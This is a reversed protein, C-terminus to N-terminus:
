PSNPRLIRYIYLTIQPSPLKKEVRVCSSDIVTASVVFDVDLNKLYDSCANTQLVFSDATVLKLATKTDPNSSIQTGVHAYRNFTTETGPISRWVSFQPYNYVGSISREGNLLAINELYGGDSAWGKNSNEGLREIERSVANETIAGLGKYLPNVRFSIFVSFMLFVATALLFKKRLLLYLTIPIPMSFLIAGRVSIFAVFNKHAYLALAIELAFVLLSYIIVPIHPLTMKKKSFNRIWLIYVMVNLLGLGILLRSTGVKDLLLLRSFPTFSPLFLQMLFVVFLGNLLLLPWDTPNKKRKDHILLYLSPAFLFPLLLLFNSTESQNSASKGDILYRGTKNESTFQYGLHASFFHKVYFGGSQVTRKGPYVTNATTKVVDLRTFIFLVVVVISVLASGIIVTGNEILQRKSWSSRNELVHGLLFVALVIGTAIQFPPYLVLAFCAGLYALLAGFLLKHKLLKQRLLLMTTIAIFFPYYLSSLTGTVYWWQVFAAFYVSLAIGSALLRKKPLLMLVFFYCGVILLYGILWWKLAFAYELPLVFFVLNHPKFLTSWEKYPIDGTTMNQGNGINKNTTAYNVESQAITQQTNVLWEDSRIARPRNIILNKDKAEGFFFSHYIGISSGHIKLSTLIIIPIFLLVPFLWISKLFSVAAGSLSTKTIKM